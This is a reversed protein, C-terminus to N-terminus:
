IQRLTKLRRTLLPHASSSDLVFRPSFERFRWRRLRCRGGGGRAGGHERFGAPVAVPRLVLFLLLSNACRALLPFVLKHAGGIGGFGKCFQAGEQSKNTIFNLKAGFSKFNESLFELLPTKEKVELDVGAADKYNSQVKEQNEDLHVTKEELFVCRLFRSVCRVLLASPHAL